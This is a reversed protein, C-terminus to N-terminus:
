KFNGMIKENYKNEPWVEGIDIRGDQYEVELVISTPPKEFNIDRLVWKDKNGLEKTKQLNVRRELKGGQYIKIQVRKVKFFEASISNYYSLELGISTLTNGGYNGTSMSDIMLPTPRYHQSPLYRAESSKTTSGQVAAKYRYNDGSSLQMSARYIGEGIKHAEAQIWDESEADANCYLLFVKADNEIESFAWQINLVIEELTSKEIDFALQEETIWKSEEYMGNIRSNINYISSHMDSLQHSNNNVINKQAQIEDRINGVKDIIIFNLLLSLILLGLVVKNM